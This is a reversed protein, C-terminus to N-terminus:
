RPVKGGPVKIEVAAAAEGWRELLKQTDSYSIWAHGEDGWGIGWSNIMRHAGRSGDPCEKQPNTGKILWAHGGYSGGIARIFIDKSKFRVPSMMGELWDTGMVVPGHNLVHNVITENDWAWAWGSVYGKDRLVKFLANVSTGEYDEGPWEDVQQCQRYLSFQDLNEPANRVPSSYLYQFGAYAVCQSTRGQDLAKATDWHKFAPQTAPETVAFQALRYNRSRPDTSPLRGFRAPNEISTLLNM